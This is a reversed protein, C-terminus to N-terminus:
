RDTAEGAIRALIDAVEGPRLWNPFHDGPMEIVDTARSAFLARLDSGMESDSCAIFTSPVSRWAAHTSEVVSAAARQPRLGLVAEHTDIASWGQGILYATLADTNFAFSDGDMEVCATFAEAFKGDTVTFAGEGVDLMPADLYVLRVVSPHAGVETVVMGGFSHGVLVVPEVSEDLLSRLCAADGTSSEPECSPLTVAVNPVGLGDLLPMVRSWAATSCCMGHVLVVTAPAM